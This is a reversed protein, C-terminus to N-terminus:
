SSAGKFRIAMVTVDDAQQVQASYERVVDAVANVLGEATDTLTHEAVTFLRQSSFLKLDADVAETVGDTYILLMDGPQLLLELTRYRTDEEVGLIFGAPLELWRPTEGRRLVLPPEHGANSYHLQGTRFNLIGCFVTVFMMSDNEQCLESNVRELIESPSLRLEAMGKLLTKSVAMFLAAPVGKDSVDGVAFYLHDGDLLAFDYLDGGVERAPELTAFVEFAKSERLPPFRKPLFSMQITRAIKLESEIREKAATTEALNSIYEKLAGKMNGFAQTLRGIEDNVPVVPLDADLNGQAIEHATRDLHRLPRTITGSILVIAAFLLLFGTLAMVLLERSLDRIDAFLEDEPFIVGVSWGNAPLPAYYVWSNRGTFFDRLPVFAEGGQIMARGLRRLGDDGHSEAMSFISSRMILRADPHTVFVGNQSILFAYGSTYIRVSSVIDKLWDLSVDATAIGAFKMQGGDRQYVPVSYTSMIINGAGEDFYPESWMTRKLEKPLQYWDWYFYPYPFETPPLTRVSGDASRYTYPSFYLSKPDFAFPEFAVTAGYIERNEVVTSRILEVLDDQRYHRKEVRFALNRPIKEVARLVAEIKYVTSITLNRANEEVNKLVAQRSFHNNYTFVAAFIATTSVLISVSLRFALGRSKMSLAV